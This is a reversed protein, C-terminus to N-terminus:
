PQYQFDHFGACLQRGTHPTDGLDLVPAHGCEEFCRRPLSGVQERTVVRGVELLLVIKTCKQVKDDRNRKNLMENLLSM